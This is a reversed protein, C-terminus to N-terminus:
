AAFSVSSNYFYENLISRVKVGPGFVESRREVNGANPPVESTHLRQQHRPRIRIRLVYIPVCWGVEARLVAVLITKPEQERPM